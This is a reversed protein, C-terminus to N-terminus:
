SVASTIYNYSEWPGKFKAAQIFVELRIEVRGGLGHFCAPFIVNFCRLVNKPIACRWYVWTLCCVMNEQDQGPQITQVYSNERLFIGVVFAPNSHRQTGHSNGIDSRVGGINIIEQSNQSASNHLPHVQKYSLHVSETFQRIVGTDLTNSQFGDPTLM